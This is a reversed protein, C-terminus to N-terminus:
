SSFKASSSVESSVIDYFDDFVGMRGGSVFAGIAALKIPTEGRKNKLAMDLKFLKVLVDCLVRNGMFAAAHLATNGSNNPKAPNLGHFESFYSVVTLSGGRVAFIISSNGEYDLAAPDLHLHNIAYMSAELSGGLAAYHLLTEASNTKIRRPDIAGENGWRFHSLRISWRMKELEDGYSFFSLRAKRSIFREPERAWALAREVARSGSMAACHLVSVGHNSLALLPWGGGEAMNAVHNMIQEGGNLAAMHGIHYGSLNATILHNCDMLVKGGDLAIAKELVEPNGGLAAMQQNRYEFRSCISYLPRTEALACYAEYKVLARTLVDESGSLLLCHLPSGIVGFKESDWTLGYHIEATKIASLEGSLCCLEWAEIRSLLSYVSYNGGMSLVFLRLREYLHKYNRIVGHEKLEDLLVSSVGMVKIRKILAEQDVGAMDAARVSFLGRAACAKVQSVSSVSEAPISAQLAQLYRNFEADNVLTVAALLESMSLGYSDLYRQLDYFTVVYDEARTKLEPSHLFDSLFPIAEPLVLGSDLAASQSDLLFDNLKKKTLM